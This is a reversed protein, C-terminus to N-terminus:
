VLCTLRGPQQYDPDPAFDEAAQMISESSARGPELGSFDVGPEVGIFRRLENADPTAGGALARWSFNTPRGALAEEITASAMNMPRVLDDLQIQGYQVGM